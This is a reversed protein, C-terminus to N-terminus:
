EPSIRTYNMFRAGRFSNARPERAFLSLFINFLDRFLPAFSLRPTSEGQWEDSRGTLIAFNFAWLKHGTQPSPAIGQIIAGKVLSSNRRAVGPGTRGEKWEEEARQSEGGGGGGRGGRQGVAGRSREEM